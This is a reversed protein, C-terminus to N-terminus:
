YGERQNSRNADWAREADAWWDSLGPFFDIEERDLLRKGDWPVIVDEPALCRFPLISRGLYLRHVFKKEVVGHLSDLSKWPLHENPSRRSRVARRGAGLGLPGSPELEVLFFLQPVVSAGEFFRGAYLSKRLPTVPEGSLRTISKLAESRTARKTQFRGSWVESVADLKKASGSPLARRGFVVGVSQSFFSPKIEHLDWPQEFAVKVEESPVPYSGSRFGEYHGLTLASLPMVYGFRGGPRLYLSICRTVFLAALDQSTSVSGGAWLGHEKSMQRFSTKQVETM